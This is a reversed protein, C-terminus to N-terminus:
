DNIYALIKETFAELYKEKRNLWEKFDFFEYSFDPKNQRNVKQPYLLMGKKARISNKFTYIEHYDNMDWYEKYKVDIVLDKKRTERNKLVIDPDVSENVTYYRKKKVIYDKSCHIKLIKRIFSEFINWSNFCFAPFSLKGTELSVMQNKLILLCFELIEKYKINLRNYTIRNFDNLNFNSIDVSNLLTIIERYYVNSEQPIIDRIHYLSFKIAKNIITNNNFKFYQCVLQNSSNFRNQISRLYNVKGKVFSSKQKVLDYGKRISTILLEYITRILFHLFIKVFDKSEELGHAFINQIIIDQKNVYHLMQLFATPGIKPRVILTSNHIDPINFIGVYSTATIEIERIDQGKYKEQKTKIKLKTIDRNDKKSCYAEFQAFQNEPILFLKECTKYEDITDSKM